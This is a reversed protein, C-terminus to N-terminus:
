RLRGRGEDVGPALADALPGKYRSRFFKKAV